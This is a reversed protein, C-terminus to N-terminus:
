LLSANSKDLFILLIVVSLYRSAVIDPILMSGILIVLLLWMYKTNKKRNEIIVLSIYAIFILTGILGMQVLYQIISNHPVVIGYINKLNQLGLGGGMIPNDFFIHISSIYSEIRGSSDLLGQGGRKSVVVDVIIPALFLFLGVLLLSKVNGKFLRLLIFITAVIAFAVLGTRSNIILISIIYLIVLCLFKKLTIKKDLYNILVLMAGTAIYLTAFSFDSMYAAFTIRGLGYMEAYGIFKHTILFYIYQIIIVLCFININLIYIKELDIILKRNSKNKLMAGIFIIIYFFILTITQKLADIVNPITLLSIGVYILFALLLIGYVFIYKNFHFRKLLIFLILMNITHYMTIPLEGYGSGVISKFSTPMFIISCLLLSELLNYQKRTFQLMLYVFIYINTLLILPAPIIESFLLTINYALVNIFFYKSYNNKNKM